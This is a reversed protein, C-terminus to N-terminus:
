GILSLLLLSLARHATYLIRVEASKMMLSVSARVESEHFSNADPTMGWQFSKTPQWPLVPFFIQIWASITVMWKLRPAEKSDEQSLVQLNGTGSLM